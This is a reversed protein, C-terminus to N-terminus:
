YVTGIGKPLHYFYTKIGILSDTESQCESFLNLRLGEQLLEAQFRMVFNQGELEALPIGNWTDKGSLIATVKNQTVVAKGPAYLRGIGHSFFQENIGM